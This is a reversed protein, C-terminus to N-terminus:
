TGDKSMSYMRDPYDYSELMVDKEYTMGIKKAVNISAINNPDILSIVRNIRLMEFTYDRVAIAAETAYGFNWFPRKLRYAVEVEQRGLLDPFNVLGCYGIFEGDQKKIVAWLGFGLTKYNEIQSGLWLDTEDQSLTGTSFRMVEKDQFLDYLSEADKSEFGRLILRTTEAIKLKPKGRDAMAAM